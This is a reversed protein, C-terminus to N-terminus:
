TSTPGAHDFMMLCESMSWSSWGSWVSVDDVNDDSVDM